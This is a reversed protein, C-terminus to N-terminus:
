LGGTVATIEFETYTTNHHTFNQTDGQDQIGVDEHSFIHYTGDGDTAEYIWFTQNDKAGSDDPVCAWVDVRSGTLNSNDHDGRSDLCATYADRVPNGLLQEAAKVKLQYGGNFESIRWTQADTGNCGYRWVNQGNFPNGLKVDFCAKVGDVKIQVDVDLLDSSIPTQTGTQTPTSQTSVPNIEFAMPVTRTLATFENLGRDWMGRGPHTWIVWKNDSSRLEIQVTQQIKYDNKDDMCGYMNQHQRHWNEEIAADVAGVGICDSYPVGPTDWKSKIQWGGNFSEIKWAQSNSTQDCTRHAPRIFNVGGRSDLKLGLCGDDVGAIKLEVDVGILDSNDTSSLPTYTVTSTDTPTPTPTASAIPTPTPTPTATATATPTPTATPTSTATPTPTPTSSNTSPQSLPTIEFAMYSTNTLGFIGNDAYDKFGVGTRAWIIWKSDSSRQEIAFKQHEKNQHSADYCGNSIVYAQNLSWNSTYAEAGQTDICTSYAAGGNGDESQIQWGGDYSVIKWIQTDDTADCPARSVGTLKEQADYHTDMCSETGAVKMQVDVNVLNSTSSLATYTTTPTSTATPTPTPTPTPTAWPLTSINFETWVTLDGSLFPQGDGQDRLGIGYDAFIAWDGGTTQYILIRQHANGVCEKVDTTDPVLVPIRPTKDESFRAELCLPTTSNETTASRIQLRTNEPKNPDALTKIIWKQGDANADCADRVVEQGDVLSDDKIAMCNNTGAIKIRVQVDMLGSDSGLETETM